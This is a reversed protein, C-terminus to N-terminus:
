IVSLIEELSTIGQKVKELGSKKLTTYGQQRAIKEIEQSSSNQFIGESIKDDIELLEFIGVRGRYGQFCHECGVAQFYFENTQKKCFDCLRRVLRQAIILSISNAIQYTPIGMQILRTLTKISTNAHLTSLVLHGTQAARIAIEATEPDRIEGVMIIDPDQRLFAKLVTSFNLGSKAQINVQNIDPFYIEVPEEVTSINVDSKNLAQLASYLTRTKGSGTPGTVLILGQSKKLQTEFYIKQHPALGLQDLNLTTQEPNLIRIVIKEGYLTPCTSVRFDYNTQNELTLKFRGDQPFRKEAIDLLALVKVRAIIQPMLYLPPEILEYLNGDVRIRIRSKKEYTELHIDSANKQISEQIINEVLHIISINKENTIKM